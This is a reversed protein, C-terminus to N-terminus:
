RRDRRRDPRRRRLLAAPTAVRLGEISRNLYPGFHAVDGTVLYAARAGLAAAFIPRDKDPLEVNDPLPAELAEPVLAVSEMLVSLRRRQETDPLNM